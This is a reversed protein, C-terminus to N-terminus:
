NAWYVMNKNWNKIGNMRDSIGLAFMYFSKQMMYLFAKSGDHNIVNIKNKCADTFGQFPSWILLMPHLGTISYFRKLSGPLAFCHRVGTLGLWIRL